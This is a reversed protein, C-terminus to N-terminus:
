FGFRSLRQRLPLPKKTPSAPKGLDAIARTN